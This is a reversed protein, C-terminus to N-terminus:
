VWSIISKWFWSICVVLICIIPVKYGFIFLLHCVKKFFRILECSSLWLVVLLFHYIFDSISYGLVLEYVVTLCIIDLKIANFSIPFSKKLNWGLWNWFIVDHKFSQLIRLECFVMDDYATHDLIHSIKHHWESCLMEFSDWRYHNEM